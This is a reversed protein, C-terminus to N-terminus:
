LMCILKYLDTEKESITNNRKPWKRNMRNGEEKRKRETGEDTEIKRQREERKKEGRGRIEYDRKQIM